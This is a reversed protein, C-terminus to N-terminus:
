YVSGWSALSVSRASGGPQLTGVRVTCRPGAFFSRTEDSNNYVSRAPQFPTAECDHEPYQAARMQGDFEPKSWFCVSGEPCAAAARARAPLAAGNGAHAPATAALALATAAALPGLAAALHQIRM